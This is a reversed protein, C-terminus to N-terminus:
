VRKKGTDLSVVPSQTTLDHFRLASLLCVVGQPVRRCVAALTHQETM